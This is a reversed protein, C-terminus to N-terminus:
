VLKSYLYQCIEKVRTVYPNNYVLLTQIFCFELFEKSYLDNQLIAEFLLMEPKVKEEEFIIKEPYHQIIFRSLDHYKHGYLFPCQGSDFLLVSNGCYGINNTHFDSHLLTLPQSNSSIKAIMRNALETYKPDAKRRPIDYLIYDYYATINKTILVNEENVHKSVNQSSLQWLNKIYSALEAFKATDNIESFVQLNEIYKIYLQDQESEALYKFEFSSLGCKQLEQHYYLERYKKFEANGRNSSSFTKLIYKDWTENWVMKLSSDSGLNLIETHQFSPTM